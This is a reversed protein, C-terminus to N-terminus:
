NYIISVIWTVPFQSSIVLHLSSHFITLHTILGMFRQWLMAIGRSLDFSPIAVLEWSKKFKSSFKKIRADNSKAKTLCLLCPKHAKIIERIGNFTDM